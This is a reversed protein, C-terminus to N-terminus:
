KSSGSYQQEINEKVFKYETIWDELMGQAAGEYMRYHSAFINDNQYVSLYISQMFFNGTNVNLYWALSFANDYSDKLLQIMEANASERAYRIKLTSEYYKPIVINATERCLSEVIASVVDLGEFSVTSPIFGVEATDHMPSIYDSQLEDLKPYPLIAFEVESNAYIESELSGLMQGGLFLARDEIFATITDDMDNHIKNTASEPLYYLKMLKENLLIARDNYINLEPYGEDNRIVSGPNTSIFFPIMSGWIDQVVFGYTDRRDRKRNGTRDIYTSNYTYGEGGCLIEMMKDLTWEQNRVIDYISEGDMGLKKYLSKSFLLCNTYRVIDIFYDGMLLYRTGQELGVSDMLDDYWYDEDFNFYRGYNTDHFLGETTLSAIRIDNIILHINDAGAKILERVSSTAIDYSYDSEIYNLKVNLNKEVLKNRQIASDSAKDGVIEDAGQILYNSSRFSNEQGSIVNISSQVTFIEGKFDLGELSNEEQTANNQKDGSTDGCAVCSLLTCAVLIFALFRTSMKKYSSM